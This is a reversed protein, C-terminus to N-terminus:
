SSSITLVNEQTLRRVLKGVSGAARKLISRKKMVAGGFSGLYDHIIITKGDISVSALLGSVPDFTAAGFIPQPRSDASEDGTWVPYIDDKYLSAYRVLEIGLVDQRVVPYTEGNLPASSEPIDFRTYVPSTPPEDDIQSPKAYTYLGHRYGEWLLVQHGDCLRNHKIGTDTMPFNHLHHIQSLRLKANVNVDAKQHESSQSDKSKPPLALEYTYAHGGVVTAEDWLLYDFGQNELHTYYWINLSFFTVWSRMFVPIPEFPATTRRIVFPLVWTPPFYSMKGSVNNNLIPELDWILVVIDTILIVVNQVSNIMLKTFTAGATQDPHIAWSMYIDRVFDWAYITLSRQDFFAFIDGSITDGHLETQTMPREQTICRKALVSLQSIEPDFELIVLTAIRAQSHEISAIRMKTGDLSPGALFILNALEPSGLNKQRMQPSPPANAQVDLVIIEEKTKTVLYRGGPILLMALVNSSATFPLAYKSVPFLKEKSSDPPRSQLQHLIALMRSPALAARKYDRVSMVERNFSALFIVDKSCVKRLITWWLDTRSTLDHLAKCTQDLVIVDSPHLFATLVYLWIDTPLDLVNM